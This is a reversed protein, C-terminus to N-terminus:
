VGKLLHVVYSVGRIISDVWVAYVFLPAVIALYIRTKIDFSDLRM